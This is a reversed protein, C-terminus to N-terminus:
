GLKDLRNVLDEIDAISDILLTPNVESAALAESRFKGTRVLVGSLGSSIAGGVDTVVDDGIMAAEGANVGMSELALTFFNRSPKGMIEAKKGTAYELAYVFPGASLMLGDTGMWYRDKELALIGAGGLIMRFAKNMSGYTFNDGADGVVVFDPSESVVSLGENEFDLHIDGTALLAIRDRGSKKIHGVAARPPTFILDPPVEFGLRALHEAVSKQSKRTTNTVFRYSYGSENLFSIAEKAGPIRDSGVYLVGDLDILLAKLTM